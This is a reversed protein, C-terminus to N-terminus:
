AVKASISVERLYQAADEPSTRVVYYGSGWEFGSFQTLRPVIELHWHYSEEGEYNVPSVHLYFNYSPDSLCLKIRALCDKLLQALSLREHEAISAFQSSHKKPLIWCEFPYRPAFPAFVIFEENQAIIREKDRYEQEIIDCFLCRKHEEYYRRAGSLEKLVYEPVMPLAIIQSHPHEVSTGASEGYNKFIIIYKFRRDRALDVMRSQYKKLVDAVDGEELDALGKHHDPTEIVVEHAGVGNSVDYIGVHRRDIEGEVRLAPFKNSIVRVKWGPQNPTSGNERIADIEPPTFHEKGPCFQCNVAQRIYHPDKEYKESSWSDHTHVIVWQGIIPDRRFESM